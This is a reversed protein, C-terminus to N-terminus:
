GAAALAQFPTIRQAPSQPKALWAVVRILNLVVAIVIHQLHTKALGSYRTRRLDAARVGQSITSEIGARIAYAKKFAPTSQRQRAAQLAEHYIQERVTVTRPERKARTCQDRVPCSFCDSHAFRIQIVAQGSGDVGPAWKRSTKGQPCQAVKREWDLTFAGNTFGTQERAQWSPDQAVPGIIRVGYQQPSEVLIESSTYGCDVVHESPLLVKKALAAHIVPLLQDDPTTAATTEVHTILRPADADCSETLHVKYGVWPEGRKISYHAEDDYPSHILLPSPPADDDTRWRPPDGPGYYQQIWVRMLMHAAPENRVISPTDAAAILSLLTFGDAGITSALAQRETKAKPLRFSDIRASYREVWGPQIKPHLWEPAVVALRNLAHRLTEGVLELRNLTRIAALIVTSDTRQKGQGRLLGREQFDRLLTDLLLTETGSTVLRARFETLM